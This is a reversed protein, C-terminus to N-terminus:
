DILCAAYQQQANLLNALNIKPTIKPSSKENLQGVFKAATHSDLNDFVQTDIDHRRDLKFSLAEPNLCHSLRVALVGQEQALQGLALSQGEDDESGVLHQARGVEPIVSGFQLKSQQQEFHFQDQDCVDKSLMALLLSFDAGDGTEISRNLQQGLQLESTVLSAITM